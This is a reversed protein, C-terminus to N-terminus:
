AACTRATRGRAARARSPRGGGVCGRARRGCTCRGSYSSRLAREMNSCARVGIDRAAKVKSTTRRVVIAADERRGSSKFACQVASSQMGCWRQVRAEVYLRM